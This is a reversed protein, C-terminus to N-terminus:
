SAGKNALRFDATISVDADPGSLKPTIVLPSAHVIREGPETWSM